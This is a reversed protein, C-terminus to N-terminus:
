PIGDGGEERAMGRTMVEMNWHDMMWSLSSPNRWDDDEDAPVELTLRNGVENFSM